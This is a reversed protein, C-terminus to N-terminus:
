VVKLMYCIYTGKFWWAGTDFELTNGTLTCVSNSVPANSIAGNNESIAAGYVTGNEAYYQVGAKRTGSTVGSSNYSVPLVLIAYDNLSGSPTSELTFTVGKVRDSNIGTGKIVEYSSTPTTSGFQRVMGAMQALTFKGEAGVYRFADGLGTLLSDSIAWQKDTPPDDDVPPTVPNDDEPIDPREEADALLQTRILQDGYYVQVYTDESGRPITLPYNVPFDSLSNYGSGAAGSVRGLPCAPIDKNYEAGSSTKIKVRQVSNQHNAAYCIIEDDTVAVTGIYPKDAATINSKGTLGASNNPRPDTYMGDWYNCGVKIKGINGFLKFTNDTEGGPSSVSFSRGGNCYLSRIDIGSFNNTDLDMMVCAGLWQNTPYDDNMHPTGPLEFHCNDIILSQGAFSPRPTTQLIDVHQGVSQPLDGSCDAYCNYLACTRVDNIVDPQAYGASTFHCNYAVLNAAQVRGICTCDHLEYVILDEKGGVSFTSGYTAAIGPLRCNYFKITLRKTRTTDTPHGGHYTNITIYDAHRNPSTYFDIDRFEFVTDDPADYTILNLVKSYQDPYKDNKPLQLQVAPSKSTASLWPTLATTQPTGWNSPLTASLTGRCGTNYKDPFIVTDSVIAM